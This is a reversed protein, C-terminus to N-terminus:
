RPRRKTKRHVHIVGTALLLGVLLGSLVGLGLTFVWFAHPWDTGPMGGINIGMLGTLFGLPLFVASLVSLIYLNRNLRADSLSENEDKLVVLRERLSEILEVHRRLNDEAEQLELRDDESLLPGPLTTLRAVADRQPVLFRRFDVVAARADTIRPGLDRAQERLLRDEMTDGEDDMTLVEAGIRDTLGEVLLALFRGATQPGTGADCDARMAEVSRLPRRSLTVIRAPDVWLRLSIMDEPDAGPNLNVGRLNLLVGDAFAAMRPRTEGASLADRVAEPLYPLTEDIWDASRPDDAQLHVWACDSAQLAGAIKDAPLPGQGEAGNLRVAFHIFDTM